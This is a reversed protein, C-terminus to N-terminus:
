GQVSISAEMRASPAPLDLTRAAVAAKQKGLQDMLLSWTERQYKLITVADELSEVKHEINAEILKRYAFNYLAALKSCIEPAVDHKLTCTLELVIKQVRCILNYSPEFNKEILAAKAQECFAVAGDYLMMQLQEPTATLVRTRLYHNAAQHNM